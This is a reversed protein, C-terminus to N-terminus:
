QTSDIVSRVTEVFRDFLPTHYRRLPRKLGLFLSRRFSEDIELQIGKGLRGLNCLNLPHSGAHWTQDEIAPFGALQLAAILRQRLRLDLGGVGISGQLGSCGHVSFVWEVQRVLRLGRPEDFRTSTIHLIANGDRKLGEFAYFSYTNAALARAIELTGPEINGGHPAIVALRSPHYALHIRYDRGEQERGALDAYSDYYDM